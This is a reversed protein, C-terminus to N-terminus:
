QCMLRYSDDPHRCRWDTTGASEAEFQTAAEDPLLVLSVQAYKRLKKESAESALARLVSSYRPNQSQGLVKCIWSLIDVLQEDETDRDRWAKAAFLDLVEPDSEHQQYSQRVLRALARTDYAVEAVAEAVAELEANSECNCLKKEEPREAITWTKNVHNFVVCNQGSALMEETFYILQKLRYSWIKVLPRESNFDYSTSAEEQTGVVPGNDVQVGFYGHWDRWAFAM